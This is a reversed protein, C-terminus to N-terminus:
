GGCRGRKFYDQATEELWIWEIIMLGLDEDSGKACIHSLVGCPYARGADVHAFKSAYYERCAWADAGPLDPRLDKTPGLDTPREIDAARSDAAADNDSRSGEEVGPGCGAALILGFAVVPGLSVSRM